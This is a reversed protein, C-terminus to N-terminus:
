STAAKTLFSGRHGANGHDEEGARELRQVLLTGPLDPAVTHQHLRELRLDHDVADLLQERAPARNRRGHGSRRRGGLDGVGDEVPQIRGRGRAARAARVAAIPRRGRPSSRDARRRKQWYRRGEPRWDRRPAARLGRRPCRPVADGAAAASAARRPDSSCRPDPGSRLRPAPAAAAIQGIGERSQQRGFLAARGRGQRREGGRGDGLVTMSSMTPRTMARIPSVTTRWATVSTASRSTRWSISRM